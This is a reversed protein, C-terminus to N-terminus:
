RLPDGEGSAVAPRLGAELTAALKEATPRGVSRMREEGDPGLILVTPFATVGLAKCTDAHRDADIMVCIFGSALRIVRPDALSGQTMEASWRCWAARCIALIPKSEVAARRLGADLGEVYELTTRSPASRNAARGLMNELAPLDTRLRHSASQAIPQVEEDRIECGALLCSVAIAALGGCRSPWPFSRSRSM